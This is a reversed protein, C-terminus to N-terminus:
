RWEDTGIHHRSETIFRLLAALSKVKNRRGTSAGRSHIRALRKTNHLEVPAKMSVSSIIIIMLSTCINKIHCQSQYCNIIQRRYLM